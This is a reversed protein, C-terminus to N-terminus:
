SSPTSDGCEALLNRECGTGNRCIFSFCHRKRAHHATKWRDSVMPGSRVKVILDCVTIGAEETMRMFNCHAWKSRHYSVMETIKALLLGDPKLM